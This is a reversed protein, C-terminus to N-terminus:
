KFSHQAFVVEPYVAIAVLHGLLDEDQVNLDAVVLFEDEETKLVAIDEEEM